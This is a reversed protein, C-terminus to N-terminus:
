WCQLSVHVVSLQTDFLSLTIEECLCLPLLFVFVKTDLTSGRQSLCAAPSHSLVTQTESPWSTPRSAFPTTACRAARRGTPVSEVSCPSRRLATSLPLHQSSLSNPFLETLSPLQWLYEVYVQNSWQHMSMLFFWCFSLVIKRVKKLLM